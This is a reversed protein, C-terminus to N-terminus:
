LGVGLGFHGYFTSVDSEASEPVGKGLSWATFPLWAPTAILLTTIKLSLQGHAILCKKLVFVYDLIVTKLANRTDIAVREDNVLGRYGEVGGSVPSDVAGTLSM